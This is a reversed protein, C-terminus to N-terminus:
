PKEVFVRVVADAPVVLAAERRARAILEELRTVKSALLARLRREQELSRVTSGVVAALQHLLEHVNNPGWTRQSEIQHLLADLRCQEDTLEDVNGRGKWHCDASRCMPLAHLRDCPDAPTRASWAGVAPALDNHSLVEEWQLVPCDDGHESATSGSAVTVTALTPRCPCAESRVHAHSGDKPIIHCRAAM